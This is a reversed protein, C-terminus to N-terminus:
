RRRAKHLRWLAILGTGALLFTGPEPTPVPMHAEGGNDMSHHLSEGILSGNIHGNYFDIDAYPALVSGHIGIANLTLAEAEHFNFLIYPAYPSGYLDYNQEIGNIFFGFHDMATDAGSVNLIVASKEPVDITLRGHAADRVDDGSLAFVNMVPDKGTLTIQTGGPQGPNWDVVATVGNVALQHYYGAYGTLENFASTFDIPSGYVLSGYGVNTLFAAGGVAIQGQQYYPSISDLSGVSGDTWFLDRGVILDGVLSPMGIGSAIGMHSYFVDGGAAVRGQSDTHSQRINEFMFINFDNGIGLEIGQSPGALFLAALFAVTALTTREM